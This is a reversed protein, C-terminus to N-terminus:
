INMLRREKRRKQLLYPIYIIRFIGCTICYYALPVFIALSARVEDSIDKIVLIMILFLTAPVYICIVIIPFFLGEFAKCYDPFCFIWILCTRIKKKTDSSQPSNNPEPTPQMALPDPIDNPIVEIETEDDM